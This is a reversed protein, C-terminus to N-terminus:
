VFEPIVDEAAANIIEDFFSLKASQFTEANLTQLKKTKSKVFGSQNLKFEIIEETFNILIYKSYKNLTYLEELGYALAESEDVSKCIELGALKAANLYLGKQSESFNAPITIVINNINQGFRTIAERFLDIIVRKTLILLKTVGNNLVYFEKIEDEMYYKRVSIANKTTNAIVTPSLYSIGAKPKDFSYDVAAPFQLVNKNKSDYLLVDKTSIKIVSNPEINYKLFEKDSDMMLIKIIMGKIVDLEEGYSFWQANPYFAKFEQLKPNKHKECCLFVNPIENLKNKKNKYTEDELYFDDVNWYGLYKVDKVNQKFFYCGSDMKQRQGNALAVGIIDGNKPFYETQTIAHYYHAAKNNLIEVKSFGCKLGSQVFTERYKKDFNNNWYICIIGLRGNIKSKIEEFFSSVEQQIIESDNDNSSTLPVKYKEANQTRSITRKPEINSQQMKEKPGFRFLSGEDKHSSKPPPMTDHLKAPLHRPLPISVLKAPTIRRIKIDRYLDELEELEENIPNPSAILVNDHPKSLHRPMTNFPVPVDFGHLQQRISPM